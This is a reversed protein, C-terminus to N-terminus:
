FRLMRIRQAIRNADAIVAERNLTRLQREKMLVKGNVITTRVDDGRTVYVLQSVPDYMHDHCKACGTTMAMFASSIKEVAGFALDENKDAASHAARSLFGTAFFEEPKASLDGAM